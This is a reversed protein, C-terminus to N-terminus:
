EEGEPEFQYSQCDRQGAEYAAELMAQVQSLHMTMTQTYEQKGAIQLIQEISQQKM